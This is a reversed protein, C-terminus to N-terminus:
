SSMWLWAGYCPLYLGGQLYGRAVSSGSQRRCTHSNNEQQGSPAPGSVSQTKAGLGNAAETIIIHSTSDLAGESDLFAGCTVEINEVAEEIHTIVCHLAIDTSVYKALGRTVTMM